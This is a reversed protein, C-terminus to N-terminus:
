VQWADSYDIKDSGTCIALEDPVNAFHQNRCKFKATCRSQVDKYPCRWQSVADASQSMGKFIDYLRDLSAAYREKDIRQEPM